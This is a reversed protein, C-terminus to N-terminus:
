EDEDDGLARLRGEEIAWLGDETAVYMPTEAWLSWYVHAETPMPDLIHTIMMAAVKPGRSLTICSRTFGRQATVVGDRVEVRHTGGVPVEDRRTTGPLLYIKWTGAATEDPLVVTNYTKSCAQFESELAVRRATAAGAEFDSLPEPADLALLPGPEGGASVQVRYLASPTGDVFTVMIGGDTPETLWGRVRRDRKFARQALAVDTAVAAARDHEFIIRGSTEAAAIAAAPVSADPPAEHPDDAAFVPLSALALIAGALATRIPAAM